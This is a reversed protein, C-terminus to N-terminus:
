KKVLWRRHNKYTDLLAKLAAVWRDCDGPLNCTLSIVEEHLGVINFARDEKAKKGFLRSKHGKGLGQTIMKVSKLPMMVGKKASKKTDKLIIAQMDTSILVHKSAPKGSKWEQLVSGSMLMARYDELPDQTLEAKALLEDEEEPSLGSSSKMALNQMASISILATHGVQQVKENDSYQSMIEEVYEKGKAECVITAYEEDAMTIHDITAICKVMLEESNLHKEIADFILEIGSYQVLCLVNDPIFALQAILEFIMVLMQDNDFHDRAVKALIHTGSTAILSSTEDDVSLKTLVSLAVNLFEEEDEEDGGSGKEMLGLITDIGGSNRIVEKNEEDRGLNVIAGGAHQMFNGNRAHERLAMLLVPLCNTETASEQGGPCEAFTLHELLKAASEILEQHWDHSQFIEVILKCGGAEVIAGAAEGDVSINGLADLGAVLLEAEQMNDKMAKIIGVPGQEETITLYM